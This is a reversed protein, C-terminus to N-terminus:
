EGHLSKAHSVPVKEVSCSADGESLQSQFSTWQFLASVGANVPDKEIRNLEHKIDERVQPWGHIHSYDWSNLWVRLIAAVYEFATRGYVFLKVEQGTNAVDTTVVWVSSPLTVISM